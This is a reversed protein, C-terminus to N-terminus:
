DLFKGLTFPERCVSRPERVLCSGCASGREDATRARVLHNPDLTLELFRQQEDIQEVPVLAREPGYSVHHEDGVFAHDASAM